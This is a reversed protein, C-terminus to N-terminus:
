GAIRDLAVRALGALRPDDCTSASELVNRAAEANPGIRGLAWAARQRVAEHETSQMLQALVPVASSAEIELRGILTVAWYAADPNPDGALHVLEGLMGRPPPGLSELAACSWEALSENVDGVNRVLACAAPAAAHELHALREASQIRVATDNSDLGQVLTQVDM